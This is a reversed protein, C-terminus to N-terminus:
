NSTIAGLSSDSMLSFAYEEGRALMKPGFTVEGGSHMGVRKWEGQYCKHCPHDPWEVNLETTRTKCHTCQFWRKMAQIKTVEHNKETCFKEKCFFTKRCQKCRWATCKQEMVKEMQLIIAEKKKLGEFMRELNEDTASQAHRSEMSDSEKLLTTIDKGENAKQLAQGFVAALGGKKVPGAEGAATPSPPTTNTITSLTNSNTTPPAITTNVSTIGPIASHTTGTGNAQPMKFTQKPPVTEPDSEDSSSDDGSSSSSSSSSGSSSSSSCCSSSRTSSSCSQHSGQEKPQQQKTSVPHTSKASSSTATTTTTTPCTHPTLPTNDPTAEQSDFNLKRVVNAPNNLKERKVKQLVSSSAVVDSWTRGTKRQQKARALIEQRLSGTTSTMTPTPASHPTLPTAPAAGRPRTNTTPTNEKDTKAQLTNNTWSAIKSTLKPAGAASNEKRNQTPHTSQPKQQQKEVTRQPTATTTQAVRNPDVLDALTMNMKVPTSRVSSSSSSSSPTGPTLSHATKRKKSPAEPMRVAQPHQKTPTKLLKEYMAAEAPSTGVPLPVGLVDYRPQGERERKKSKKPTTPLQQQVNNTPTPQVTPQQPQVIAAKGGQQQIKQQKAANWNKMRVALQEELAKLSDRIVICREYNKEKECKEMEAKAEAIKRRTKRIALEEPSAPKPGENAEAIKPGMFTAQNKKAMLEQLNRVGLFSSSHSQIAASVDTKTTAHAMQPNQQGAAPKIAQSATRQRQEPGRLPLTLRSQSGVQQLAQKLHWECFGSACTRKNIPTTCRQGALTTGQCTAYDASLGVPRIQDGDNVSLALDQGRNNDMLKPNILMVVMGVAVESMRQQYADGFLLVTNTTGNLDTLRLVIYKKANSSVNTKSKHCVVGMTAWKHSKDSVLKKYLPIEKMPHYKCSRFIANVMGSSLMRPNRIAFGSKEEEHVGAESPTDTKWLAKPALQAMAQKPAESGYDDPLADVSPSQPRAASKAPTKDQSEEPEDQFVADATPKPETEALGVLDMLMDFGEDGTETM